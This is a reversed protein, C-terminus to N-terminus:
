SRRQACRSRAWNSWGARRRCLGGHMGWAARLAAMFDRQPLPHPAALNVPGAVGDCALLFQVARVFDRDHMWSMYQRGGAIPGGLGWRTLALLADFPGGPDPSMVMASRLAVRRTRPTDAEYLADEWARAIDISKRWYRPVNPEEGGIRGTAEDNPADFRHAYITATSMQLWTRPPHAAQAIARGVVRTSEVRSDM